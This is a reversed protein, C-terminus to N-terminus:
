RDFPTPSAGAYPSLNAVPPERNGAELETLAAAPQANASQADEAEIIAQDKVPLECLARVQRARAVEGKRYYAVLRWFCGEPDSRADLNRLDFLVTEWRDPEAPARAAREADRLEDRRNQALAKAAAASHSPFPTIAVDRHISAIEVPGGSDRSPRSTKRHAAPKGSIHSKARGAPKQSTVKAAVHGHPKKDAQAGDGPPAAAGPRATLIIAAAM